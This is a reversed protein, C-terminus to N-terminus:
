KGKFQAYAVKIIQELAEASDPQLNKDARLLATVQALPEPEQPRGNFFDSADLGSWTLLLALGDVDLRRGQSIRTLTSQSVGSEAAVDKWMLERATRHADIAAFFSDMNFEDRM